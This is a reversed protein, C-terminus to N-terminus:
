HYKYTYMYVIIIIIFAYQMYYVNYIMYYESCAKLVFVYLYIDNRSNYLIVSLNYQIITYMAYVCM